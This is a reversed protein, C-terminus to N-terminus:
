DQGLAPQFQLSKIPLDRWLASGLWIYAVATLAASLFILLPIATMAGIYSLVAGIILSWAALRPLKRVRLTAIGFLLYGAVYVLTTIMFTGMYPGTGVADVANPINQIYPSVMVNIFRYGLNSLLALFAMLFGLFGSIGAREAQILYFGMFAFLTLIITIITRLNDMAPTVFGALNGINFLIMLLGALIGSLGSWRLLTRSSM